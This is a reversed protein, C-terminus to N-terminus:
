IGELYKTCDTIVVTKSKDAKQIILDKCEILNKIRYVGSRIIKKWSQLIIILLLSFGTRVHLYM